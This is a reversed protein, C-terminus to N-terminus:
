NVACNQKFYMLISFTFLWVWWAPRVEFNSPSVISRKVREINTDCLFTMIQLYRPNHSDSLTATWQWLWIPYAPLQIFAKYLDSVEAIPWRSLTIILRKRYCPCAIISIPFCTITLFSWMSGFYKFVQRYTLVRWFSHVARFIAPKERLRGSTRNYWLRIQGGTWESTTPPERLRWFTTFLSFSLHHFVFVVFCFPQVQPQGFILM